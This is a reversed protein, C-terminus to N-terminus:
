KKLSHTMRPARRSWASAAWLEQGRTCLWGRIEEGRRERPGVGINWFALTEYFHAKKVYVERMSHAPGPVLFM